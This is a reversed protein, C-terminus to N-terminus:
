FFCTKSFWAKIFTLFFLKHTANLTIANRKFRPRKLHYCIIAYNFLLEALFCLNKFNMSKYNNKYILFPNQNWQLIWTWESGCALFIKMLHRFMRSFTWTLPFECSYSLLLCVFLNVCFFPCWCHAGILTTLHTTSPLSPLCVMGQNTSIWIVNRLWNFWLLLYSKM